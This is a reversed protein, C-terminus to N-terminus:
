REAPLSRKASSRVPAGHDGDDPLASQQRFREVADVTTEGSQTAVPVDPSLNMAYQFLAVIINGSYPVDRLDVEDDSTADRFVLRPSVCVECAIRRQFELIQLQEAGSLEAPASTEQHGILTLALKEPLAGSYLMSEISVRRAEFEFVFDPAISPIPLHVITTPPAVAAIRKKFQAAYRIGRSNKM